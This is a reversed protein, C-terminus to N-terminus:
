SATPAFPALVFDVLGPAIDVLQDGRDTDVEHQVIAWIGGATAELVVRPPRQSLEPPLEEPELLAIFAELMAEARARAAQGAAPLAGFVIRRHLPSAAFHSLLARLAAIGGELWGDEASFQAATRQFSLLALADFAALFAEEKSAFNAYFTQNSVGARKSIAAVTLSPYGSKAVVQAAARMIRDRQSLARRAPSINPPAEWDAIGESSPPPASRALGAVRREETARYLLAWEILQPFEDGLAGLKADRLRRYIVEHAGGILGRIALAAPARGGAIDTLGQAVIREFRQIAQERSASAGAGVDLSALFVLKAEPTREEVLELFAIAAAALGAPAKGGSRFGAEITEAGLEAIEDFTRLFCEEKSSFERYFASKSVGALTVLETVTVSDYGHADIAAVMAGMLRGRQHVSVRESGMKQASRPSLRPFIPGPKGANPRAM